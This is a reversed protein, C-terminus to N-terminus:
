SYLVYVLFSPSSTYAPQAQRPPKYSNIALVIECAVVSHDLQVSQELLPTQLGALPPAPANPDLAGASIKLFRLGDSIFMATQIRSTIEM